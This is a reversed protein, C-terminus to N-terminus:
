EQNARNTWDCDAAEELIMQELVRLSIFLFLGHIDIVDNLM